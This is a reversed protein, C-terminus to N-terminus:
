INRIQVNDFWCAKAGRYGSLGYNGGTWGESITGQVTGLSTWNSHWIQGSLTTSSTWRFEMWYWTNLDLDLNTTGLNTSEGGVVKNIAIYGGDGSGASSSMSYFNDADQWAMIFAPYRSYQTELSKARIAKGVSSNPSNMTIKDPGYFNSMHGDEIIWSGQQVYWNPYSDPPLAGANYGFHKSPTHDNFYDSSVVVVGGEEVKAIINGVTTHSLEGLALYYTVNIEANARDYPIYNCGDVVFQAQEGNQLSGNTSGTCGGITIETITMDDGRGNRLVVTVSDENVRFDTCAIGSHLVCKSALFRDPSLVGFYSLTAIAVMVVLFVWGYTAIFELAAQGRKTM